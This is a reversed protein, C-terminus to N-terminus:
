RTEQLQPLSVGQALRSATERTEPPLSSPMHKQVIETVVEATRDLFSTGDPLFAKHDLYGNRGTHDM